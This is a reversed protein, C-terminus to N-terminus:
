VFGVQPHFVKENRCLHVMFGNMEAVVFRGGCNAFQSSSNSPCSPKRAPLDRVAVTQLSHVEPPLPSQRAGCNAFQSGVPKPAPVEHSSTKFTAPPIARVEAGTQANATEDGGERAAAEADRGTKKDERTGYGRRRCWLTLM